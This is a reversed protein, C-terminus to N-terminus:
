LRLTLRHSLLSWSIIQTVRDGLQRTSQLSEFPQPHSSYRHSPYQPPCLPWGTSTRNSHPESVMGQLKLLNTRGSSAPQQSGSQLAVDHPSFFTQPKFSASPFSSRYRSKTLHPEQHQNVSSNLRYTPPHYRCVTNPESSSYIHFSSSITSHQNVNPGKIEQCSYSM